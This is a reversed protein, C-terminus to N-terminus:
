RLGVFRDKPIYLKHGHPFTMEIGENNWIVRTKRIDNDDLPQPDIYNIVHGYSKDNKGSILVIYNSSLPQSQKIISLTYPDNSNYKVYDGQSTEMVIKNTVTLGLLQFITVILLLGTILGASLAAIAMKKM